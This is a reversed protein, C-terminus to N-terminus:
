QRVDGSVTVLVNVWLSTGTAVGVMAEEDMAVGTVGGGEEVVAVDVVVAVATM